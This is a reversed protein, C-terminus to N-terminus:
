GNSVVRAECEDVNGNYEVGVLWAHPVLVLGRFKGFM